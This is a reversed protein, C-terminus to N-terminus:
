RDRYVRAYRLALETKGIGGLGHVAAQGVIVGARAGHLLEALGDVDRGEFVASGVPLNDVGAVETVSRPAPVVPVDVVTIHQVNGSGFQVGTSGRVEFRDAGTGPETM